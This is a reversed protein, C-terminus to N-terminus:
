NPRNDTDDFVFLMQAAASTRRRLRLKAILGVPLLFAALCLGYLVWGITSAEGWGLLGHETALSWLYSDYAVLASFTVLMLVRNWTPAIAFMVSVSLLAVTSSVSVGIALM